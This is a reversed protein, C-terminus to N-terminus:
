YRYNQLEHLRSALTITYVILAILTAASIALGIIALVKPKKFVGIFSFILGLLWLIWNLIPIWFLVAGIISMIFGTTGLANSKKVVTTTTTTNTNEEM